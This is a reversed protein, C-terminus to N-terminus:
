GNRTYNQEEKRCSWKTTSDKKSFFHREIEHNEYFEDYEYSTIEGGRDSRLFKIKSDIENEVLAKFFKFKEFAEFKEKIFTVWTMRIYDDILLMFYSKGKFTQTRAPGYLDIHIIELPKSISYEKTEFSVRTQKGHQCPKCITDIYNSIRPM